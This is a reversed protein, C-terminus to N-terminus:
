LVSYFDELQLALGQAFATLEAANAQFQVTQLLSSESTERAQNETAHSETEPKKLSLCVSTSEEGPELDIKLVTELFDSHFPAANAQLCKEVAVKLDAVEHRLMWPGEIHEEVSPTKLALRCIIWEDYRTCPMITTEWGLISLAFHIHGDGSVLLAPPVSQPSESASATQSM